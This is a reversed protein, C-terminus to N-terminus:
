SDAPQPNLSPRPGVSEEIVVTRGNSLKFLGSTAVREGAHLGERIAVYDGRREGARVFRQEAVLGRGGPGPVLAFVSDGYSRRYVATSPIAVVEVAGPLVVEVRAFMGPVLWEQPNPTRSEVRFSRNRPDIVPDVATVKATLLTGPHADLRLRVEMGPAVEPFRNQPLSFEVRAETLDQLTVIPQGPSLFAGPDVHRLGLRGAFPARIRKLAITAKLADVAAETQRATADAADLDAQSLTNNLRLDRARRLSIRALSAAAEAAVLEAEEVSTDLELLLQGPEVRQGSQFRVSRVLGPVESAVVVSERARVTGVAPITLEWTGKTAAEATVAEPPFEPMAQPAFQKAKLVFIVSAIGGLCGLAILFKKIM